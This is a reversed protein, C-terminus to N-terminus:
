GCLGVRVLVNLSAEVPLATEDDGGAIVAKPTPVDAQRVQDVLRARDGSSVEGWGFPGGEVGVVGVHGGARRAPCCGLWCFNTVALANDRVSRRGCIPLLARRSVDEREQGGAAGVLFPLVTNILSLVALTCTPLRTRLSPTVVLISAAAMAWRSSGLRRVYFRSASCPWGPYSVVARAVSRGAVKKAGPRDSLLRVGVRSGMGRPRDRVALSPTADGRAGPRTARGPNADFCGLRVSVVPPIGALQDGVVVVVVSRASTISLIMPLVRLDAVLTRKAPRVDPMHTHM